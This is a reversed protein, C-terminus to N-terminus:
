NRRPTKKEDATFKQYAPYYIDPNGAYNLQYMIHAEVDNQPKKAIYEQLAVGMASDRKALLTTLDSSAELSEDKSVQTGSNVTENYKEIEGSFQATKANAMTYYDSLETQRASTSTITPYQHATEPLADLTYTGAELYVDYGSRRSDRAADDVIRIRYYGPTDIIKKFHFKGDEINETFLTNNADDKIIMTGSNLGKVTGTIDTFKNKCGTIVLAFLLYPIYKM